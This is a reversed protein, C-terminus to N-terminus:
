RRVETLAIWKRHMSKKDPSRDNEKQMLKMDDIDSYFKSIRDKLPTRRRRHRSRSGTDEKQLSAVIIYYTSIAPYLTTPQRPPFSMAEVNVKLLLSKMWDEQAGMEDPQM